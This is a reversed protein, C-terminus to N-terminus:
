QEPWKMSTKIFNFVRESDLLLQAESPYGEYVGLKLYQGGTDTGLQGHYDVIQVGDRWIKLFGTSDTAFNAQIQIDYPHGRVISNSDSYVVQEFSENINVIVKMKDGVISISFPIGSEEHMQAVSLWDVNNVAGPEVNM